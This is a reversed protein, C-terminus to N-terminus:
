NKVTPNVSFVMQNHKFNYKGNSKLNLNINIYGMGRKSNAPVYLQGIVEKKNTRIEFYRILSSSKFNNVNVNARLVYSGASLKGKTKIEEIDGNTLSLRSIKFKPKNNNGTFTAKKQNKDENQLTLKQLFHQKINKVTNMKVSHTKAAQVINYNVVNTIAVPMVALLATVTIQVFRQKKM